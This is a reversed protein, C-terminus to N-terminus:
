LEHAPHTQDHIQNKGHLFGGQGLRTHKERLIIIGRKQDPRLLFATLLVFKGCINQTLKENEEYFSTHRKKGREM